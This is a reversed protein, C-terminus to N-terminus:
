IKKNCVVGILHISLAKWRDIEGGRPDYPGFAHGTHDPENFYLTMFDPRSEAREKWLPHHNFHTNTNLLM